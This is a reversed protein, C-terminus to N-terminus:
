FVALSFLARRFADLCLTWFKSSLYVFLYRRLPRLTLLFMVRHGEDHIKGDVCLFCRPSCRTFSSFTKRLVGHGQGREMVGQKIRWTGEGGARAGGEFSRSGKQQLHDTRPTLSLSLSAVSACVDWVGGGFRPSMYPLPASM